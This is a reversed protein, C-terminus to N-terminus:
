WFVTRVGRGCIRRSSAGKGLGQQVHSFLTERIGKIARCSCNKVKNLLCSVKSIYILVSFGCVIVLVWLPSVAVLGQVNYLLHWNEWRIYQFTIRLVMSSPVHRSRKFKVALALPISWFDIEPYNHPYLLPPLIEIQNLVWCTWNQFNYM